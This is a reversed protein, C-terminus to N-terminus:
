CFRPLRVKNRGILLGGENDQLIRIVKELARNFLVPSLADGQKLGTQVTLTGSTENQTRVRYKTNEMYIKTLAILKKPFWVRVYHQQSERHIPKKLIKSYNGCIRDINTGRKL